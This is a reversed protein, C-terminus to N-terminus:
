APTQESEPQGEAPPQKTISFYKRRGCWCIIESIEATHALEWAATHLNLELKETVGASENSESGAYRKRTDELIEEVDEVDRYTSYGTAFLQTVALRMVESGYKREIKLMQKLTTM